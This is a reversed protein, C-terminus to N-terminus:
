WSTSTLVFVHIYFARAPRNAGDREYLVTLTAYYRADQAL